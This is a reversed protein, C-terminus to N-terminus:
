PHVAANALRARTDAHRTVGTANSTYCKGLAPAAHKAIVGFEGGAAKTQLGYLRNAADPLSFAEIAATYFRDAKDLDANITAVDMAKLVKADESDPQDDLLPLIQETLVKPGGPGNVQARIWVVAWYREGAVAAKIGFPDPVNFKDMAALLRSKAQATLQGSNIIYDVQACALTHLANCVLASILLRDGTAHRSMAFIATIRDAAEDPKQAQILRRSDAALFRGAGRLKGLHPLLAGIGQSYEIGFDCADIKAARMLTYSIDQHDILRQSLEASPLWNTNNPDIAEGVKTAVDDPLLM